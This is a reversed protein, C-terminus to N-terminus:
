DNKKSAGVVGGEGGRDGKIGSCYCIRRSKKTGIKRDWSRRGRKASKCEGEVARPLATGRRQERSDRLDSKIKNDSLRTKQNLDLDLAVHLCVDLLLCKRFSSPLRPFSLQLFPADCQIRVSKMPACRPGRKSSSRHLKPVLFLAMDAPMDAAIDAALDAACSLRRANFESRDCKPRVHRRAESISQQTKPGPFLGHGRSQNMHSVLPKRAPPQPWHPATWCTSSLLLANGGCGHGPTSTPAM